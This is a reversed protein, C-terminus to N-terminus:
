GLHLGKRLTQPPSRPMPRFAHPLKMPSSCGTRSASSLIATLPEQLLMLAAFTISFLPLTRM